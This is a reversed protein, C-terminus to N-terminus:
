DPATGDGGMLRAVLLSTSREGVEPPTEFAVGIGFEVEADDTGLWREIGDTSMGRAILCSDWSESRVGPETLESVASSYSKKGDDGCSLSVSSTMM